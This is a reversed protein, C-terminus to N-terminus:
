APNQEIWTSNTQGTSPLICFYTVGDVTATDGWVTGAPSAIGRILRWAGRLWGVINRGSTASGNAWSNQVAFKDATPNGVYRDFNDAVAAGVTGVNWNNLILNAAQGTGNAGNLACAFQISAASGCLPMRLATGSGAATSGPRLLALPLPDNTAPTPVFTEYAGAQLHYGPTRITLALNDKAVVILYDDTVAPTINATQNATILGGGPNYQGNFWDIETTAPMIGGDSQLTSAAAVSGLAPRKPKHTSTNYGEALGFTLTGTQQMVAVYFDASLGSGAAACKYVDCTVGGGGIAVSEIFSWAPHTPITTQMQTRITTAAVTTSALATFTGQFSVM